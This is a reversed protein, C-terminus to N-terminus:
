MSVHCHWCQISICWEIISYQVLSNIQLHINQIQFEGNSRYLNPLPLTNRYFTANDSYKSILRIPYKIQNLDGLNEASGTAMVKIEWSSYLRSEVIDVCWCMLYKSVGPWTEGSWDTTPIPRRRIEFQDNLFNFYNSWWTLLQAPSPQSWNGM